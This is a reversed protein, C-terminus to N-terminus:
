KTQEVAAKRAVTKAKKKQRKTPVEGKQMAEFKKLTKLARSSLRIKTGDVRRTQLNVGQTKKTAM